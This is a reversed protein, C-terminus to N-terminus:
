HNDPKRPELLQFLVAPRILKSGLDSLMKPVAAQSDMWHESWRAHYPSIINAHPFAGPVVVMSGRPASIAPFKESFETLAYAERRMATFATHLESSPRRFFVTGPFPYGIPLGEVDFSLTGNAIMEPRDQHIAYRGGASTLAVVVVLYSDETAYDRRRSELFLRRMYSGGSLVPQLPLFNEPLGAERFGLPVQNSLDRQFRAEDTGRLNDLPYQKILVRAVGDRANAEHYQRLADQASLPVTGIFKRNTVVIAPMYSPRAIAGIPNVTEYQKTNITQADHEPDTGGRAYPVAALFVKRDNEIQAQSPAGHRRTLGSPTRAVMGAVSFTALAAELMQQVTVEEAFRSLAGYIHHRQLVGNTSEPSKQILAEIKTAPSKSFTMEIRDSEATVLERVFDVESSCAGKLLRSPDIEWKPDAVSSFFQRVAFIAHLHKKAQDTLPELCPFYNLIARDVRSISDASVKPSLISARAHRKSDAIAELTLTLPGIHKSPKPAIATISKVIADVLFADHEAAPIAM